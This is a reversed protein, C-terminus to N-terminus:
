KRKLWSKLAAPRPRKFIVEVDDTGGVLRGSQTLATLSLRRTTGTVNLEDTEVYVNLEEVGDGDRDALQVELPALGGFRVSAPDISEGTVDSASLRAVVLGPVFLVNPSHDPRIDISVPRYLDVVSIAPLRPTQVERTAPFVFEPRGDGTVDALRAGASVAPHAYGLRVADLAELRDDAPWARRGRVLTIAGSSRDVAVLDAMGDFDLDGIAVHGWPDDGSPWWLRADADAAAVVLRPPPAPRGFVMTIQGCGADDPAPWNVVLDDRGDGNVDGMLPQGSALPPDPGDLRALYDRATDVVAPWVPRGGIVYIRGHAGRLGWLNSESASVVLDTLGDGNWDGATCYSGLGEGMRAGIIRVSADDFVDLRAPWRPRGFLVFVAGASARQPASFEYASLVLDDTGDRDLDFREGFDCPGLRIDTDLPVGLTVDADRPLELTDPWRDRGFVVLTDGTGHFSEPERLGNAFALDDRGDGNFDAVAAAVLDAPATSRITVMASAPLRGGEPLAAGSVIYVERVDPASVILDTRADGDVDGTLVRHQTDAGGSLLFHAVVSLGPGDAAPDTDTGTMLVASVAIVTSTVAVGVAAFGRAVPTRPAPDAPQGRQQWWRELASPYAYVSSRNHHPHRHVPLREDKEWRQVTRVDRDFFAAIDKWSTFPREGPPAEGAM